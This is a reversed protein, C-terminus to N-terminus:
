SKLVESVNAWSNFNGQDLELLFDKAAQLAVAKEEPTSEAPVIQPTENVRVNCGVM